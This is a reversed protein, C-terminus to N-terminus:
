PVERIIEGLEVAGVLNSFDLDVQALFEKRTISGNAYAEVAVQPAAVTILSTGSEGRYDVAVQEISLDGAQNAEALGRLTEMFLANAEEQTSVSIADSNSDLTLVAIQGERGSIPIVLADVGAIGADRLSDNLAESAIRDPAGAYLEEAGTGSIGVRRLIWPAFWILAVVLVAVGALAALCGICGGCSRRSKRQRNEQPTETM